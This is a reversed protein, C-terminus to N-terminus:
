LYIEMREKTGLGKVRAAIASDSVALFTTNGGYVNNDCGTRKFGEPPELLTAPIM